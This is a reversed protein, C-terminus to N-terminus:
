KKRRRLEEAIALKIAPGKMRVVEWPSGKSTSLVEYFHRLKGVSMGKLKDDLDLSRNNM